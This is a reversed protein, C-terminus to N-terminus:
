LGQIYGISLKYANTSGQNSSFYQNVQIYLTSKKIRKALGLAIYSAVRSYNHKITTAKQDWKEQGTCYYASFAPQLWWTDTMRFNVSAEFGFQGEQYSNYKTTDTDIYRYDRYAANAYEGWVALNIDISPIVQKRIVWWNIWGEYLFSSSNPDLLDFSEQDYNDKTYSFEIDFIGKVSGGVGASFGYLGYTKEGGARLTIGSQGKELYRSVQASVGLGLCIIIFTFLSKQM